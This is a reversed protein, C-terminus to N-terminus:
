CFLLVGSTIIPFDFWSACSFRLSLLESDSAKRERTQMHENQVEIHALTNWFHETQLM